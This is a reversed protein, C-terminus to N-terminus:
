FEFHIPFHSLILDSVVHAEYPNRWSTIRRENMGYGVNIFHIGYQTNSNGLIPSIHKLTKADRSTKADIMPILESNYFQSNYFELISPLSRYNFLLKSILRSEYSM